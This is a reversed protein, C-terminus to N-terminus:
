SRRDIISQSTQLIDSTLDIKGALVRALMNVMLKDDGHRIKDFALRVIRRKRTIDKYRDPPDSVYRVNVEVGYEDIRTPMM